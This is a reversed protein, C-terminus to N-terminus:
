ERPGRRPWGQLISGSTNRTRFAWRGRRDVSLRAWAHGDRIVDYTGDALEGARETAETRLMDLDAGAHIREGNRDL